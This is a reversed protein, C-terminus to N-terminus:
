GIVEPEVEQLQTMHRQHPAIMLQIQEPGLETGYTIAFPEGRRPYPPLRPHPLSAQCSAEAAPGQLQASGRHEDTPNTVAATQPGAHELADLLM